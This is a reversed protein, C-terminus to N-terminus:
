FSDTLCNSNSLLFFNNRPNIAEVGRENLIKPAFPYELLSLTPRTLSLSLEDQEEIWRGASCSEPRMHQLSVQVTSLVDQLADM